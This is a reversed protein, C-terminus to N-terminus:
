FLCQRQRPVANGDEWATLATLLRCSGVAEFVGRRVFCRDPAPPSFIGVEINSHRGASCGAEIHHVKVALFANGLPGLKFGFM